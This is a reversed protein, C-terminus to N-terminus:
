HRTQGLFDMMVRLSLQYLMDNAEDVTEHFDDDSKKAIKKNLLLKRVFEHSEESQLYELVVEMTAIPLFREDVEFVDTVDAERLLSATAAM